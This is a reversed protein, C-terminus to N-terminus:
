FCIKNKYKTSNSWTYQACNQLRRCLIKPIGNFSISKSIVNLFFICITPIKGQRWKPLNKYPDCDSSSALSCFLVWLLFSILLFLFPGFFIFHIYIYFSIPIFLFLTLFFIALYRSVVYYVTCLLIISSLLLKIKKHKRMALWKSHRDFDDSWWKLM